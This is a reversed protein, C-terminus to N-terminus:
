RTHPPERSPLLGQSSRHGPGWWSVESCRPPGHAGGGRTCLGFEGSGITYTKNPKQQAEPEDRIMTRIERSFCKAQRYRPGKLEPGQLTTRPKPTRPRGLPPHATGVVQKKLVVEEPPGVSSLIQLLHKQTKKTRKRKSSKEGLQVLERAVEAEM